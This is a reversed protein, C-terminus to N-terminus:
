MTLTLLIGFWKIYVEMSSVIHDALRVCNIGINWSYVGYEM